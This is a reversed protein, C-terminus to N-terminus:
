SYHCCCRRHHQVSHKAKVWKISETISHLSVLDSPTIIRGSAAAYTDAVDRGLQVRNLVNEKSDTILNKKRKLKRCCSVVSCYDASMDEKLREACRECTPGEISQRAAPNDTFRSLSYNGGSLRWFLFFIFLETILFNAASTPFPCKSISIYKWGTCYGEDTRESDNQREEWHQTLAVFLYEAGPFVGLLTLLILINVM